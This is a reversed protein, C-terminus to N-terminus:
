LRSRSQFHVYNITHWSQWTHWPHKGAHFCHTSLRIFLKRWVRGLSEQLLRRLGHSIQNTKADMRQKTCTLHKYNMCGLVCTGKFTYLLCLTIVDTNTLEECEKKTLQNFSQQTSDTGRWGWYLATTHFVIFGAWVLAQNHHTSLSHCTREWRSHLACSTM